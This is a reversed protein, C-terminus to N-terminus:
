QAVPKTAVDMARVREGGARRLPSTQSTEDSFDRGCRRIREAGCRVADCRM